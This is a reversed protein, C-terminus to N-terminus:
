FSLPAFQRHSPSESKLNPVSCLEMLGDNIIIGQPVDAHEVIIHRTKSISEKLKKIALNEITLNTNINKKQNIPHSLCKM